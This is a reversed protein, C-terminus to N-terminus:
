KIRCEMLKKEGIYGELMDGPQVPGVGAPTGTYILDGKQLTFFKSVYAIITEFSYIMMASNGEQAIQGNKLTKFQINRTDMDGVPIFEGIVASGDFGKAIEWPMGKQKQIEQLDRATFDIGFTIEDFYKRAFKESINKGNKNIKIVLEGEYHINKSFEPYYFPDGDKLLATPPKAFIMPETTLTNNLEAAHDAYNRGVCFIKM